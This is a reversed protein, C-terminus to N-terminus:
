QHDQPSFQSLFRRRYLLEHARLPGMLWLIITLAFHRIGTAKPTKSFKGKISLEIKKQDAKYMFGILFWQKLFVMMIVVFPVGTGDM